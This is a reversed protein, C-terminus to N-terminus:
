TLPCSSSLELIETDSLVRNFWSFDDVKGDFFRTPGPSAAFDICGITFDRTVDPLGGFSQTAGTSVLSGNIYLRAASNNFTGCLHTWTSTPTTYSFSNSSNTANSTKLVNFDVKQTGADNFLRLDFGGGGAATSYKASITRFTNNAPLTDPNIWLSITFDTLNTLNFLSNGLTFRQNSGNLDAATAFIGSVYTPSNVSTLNLAGNNYHNANGDFKYYLVLDTLSVLPSNCGLISIYDIKTEIGGSVADVANLTISYTGPTTFSKQPSSATSFSGDSFEWFNFVPTPDSLNSFTIGVGTDTSQTSAVFDVDMSAATGGQLIPNFFGGIM